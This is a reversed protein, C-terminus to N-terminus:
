SKAPPCASAKAEQRKAFRLMKVLEAATVVAEPQGDFRVRLCETNTKGSVECDATDLLDVILAKM